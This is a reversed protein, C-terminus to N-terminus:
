FIDISSLHLVRHCMCTEADTTNVCRILKNSLTCLYPGCTQEHMLGPSRDSIPTGMLSSRHTSTYLYYYAYIVISHRLVWAGQVPVSSCVSVFLSKEYWVVLWWDLCLLALVRNLWLPTTWPNKNRYMKRKVGSHYLQRREKVLICVPAKYQLSLYRCLYLDYPLLGWRIEKYCPQIHGGWM